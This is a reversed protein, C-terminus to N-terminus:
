RAWKLGRKTLVYVKDIMAISNQTVEVNEKFVFVGASVLFTLDWEQFSQDGAIASTPMYPPLFRDKPERIRATGEGRAAAMLLRQSNLPLGNRRERREARWAKLWKMGANALFGLVALVAGAIVPTLIDHRRFWGYLTQWNIHHM